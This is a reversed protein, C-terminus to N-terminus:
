WLKWGVGVSGNWSLRHRREVLPSTVYSAGLPLIRAFFGIDTFFEYGAELTVAYRAVADVVIGEIALDQTTVAGYILDACIRHRRGFSAGAGFASGWVNPAGDLDLASGEVALKGVAAGAFLTWRDGPLPVLYLLQAGLTAYASGTGAGIALGHHTRRSPLGDDDGDPAAWAPATTALLLALVGSCALRPRGCRTRM